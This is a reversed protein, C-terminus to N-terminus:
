RKFYVEDPLLPLTPLDMQVISQQNVGFSSRILAIMVWRVLLQCQEMDNNARIAGVLQEWLQRPNLRRHIVIPVYRPPIYVFYRTRATTVVEDSSQLPGILTAETDTALLEDMREVTSPVICSRGNNVIDFGNAPMEVSSIQGNSVDGALMLVKGDWQTPTSLTVPMRHIGNFAMSLGSADGSDKFLGLITKPAGIDTQILRDIIQASTLEDDVDTKLLNFVSAYNGRFPDNAAIAFHERFTSPATTSIATTLQQGTTSPVADSSAAM